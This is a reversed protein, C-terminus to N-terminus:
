DSDPLQRLYARLLASLAQQQEATLITLLRREVSEVEVACSNVVRQGKETLVSRVVHGNGSDARRDILGKSELSAMTLQAAQPTTLMLRSLESGSLGPRQAIRNLVSLQTGSVGHHRLAEDFSRRSFQFAEWLLWMLPKEKQKVREKSVDHLV